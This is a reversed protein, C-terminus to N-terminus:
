DEYIDESYHPTILKVLNDTSVSIFEACIIDRSSIESQMLFSVVYVEIESRDKGYKTKKTGVYELSDNDFKIGRKKLYAQVKELMENKNMTTYSIM